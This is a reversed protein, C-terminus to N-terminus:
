SEFGPFCLSSVRSLAHYPFLPWCHALLVLLKSGNVALFVLILMSTEGLEQWRLAINPKMKEGSSNIVDEGSEFSALARMCIPITKM